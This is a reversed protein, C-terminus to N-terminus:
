GILLNYSEQIRKGQGNFDGLLILIRMLLLRISLCIHRTALLFHCILRLITLTEISGLCIQHIMMQIVIWMWVGLLLLLILKSLVMTPNKIRCGEYIDLLSAYIRVVLLMCTDALASTAPHQLSRIRVFSRTLLPRCRKIFIIHFHTNTVRPWSVLRAYRFIFSATWCLLINFSRHAFWLPGHDLIYVSLLLLEKICLLVQLRRQVILLSAFLFVRLFYCLSLRYLLIHLAM